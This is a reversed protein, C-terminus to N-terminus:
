AVAQVAPTAAGVVLVRRDYRRFCVALVAGLALVSIVTLAILATDLSVALLPAFAVAAFPPYTFPLVTGDRTPPLVVYPDGHSFFAQTGLRYVDLDLGDLRKWILVIVVLLVEGALLMAPM